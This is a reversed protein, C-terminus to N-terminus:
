IDQERGKQREKMRQGIEEEYPNDKGVGDSIWSIVDKATYLGTYRISNEKDNKRYLRIQPLHTYPIEEGANKWCDVEFIRVDEYRGLVHVAIKAVKLIRDCVTCNPVHFVVVADIEHNFVYKKFNKGVVRRVENSKHEVPKDSKYFQKVKGEKWEKFFIKLSHANIRDRMQYVKWQGDKLALIRVASSEPNSVGMLEMLHALNPKHLHIPLQISLIEWKFDMAAQWFPMQIGREENTDPYFIFVASKDHQFIREMAWDSPSRLINFYKLTFNQMVLDGHPGNRMDQAKETQEYWYIGNAHMLRDRDFCSIWLYYPYSAAIEKFFDYDSDMYGIYFFFREQTNEYKKLQSRTDIFVGPYAITKHLWESVLFPSRGATYNVRRKNIYLWYQPTYFVDQDRCMVRDVDCDVMGWTVNLEKQSLRQYAGYFGRMARLGEPDAGSNFLVFIRRHGTSAESFDKYRFNVMKSKIEEFTMNLHEPQEKPKKQEDRARKKSVSYVAHATILVAVLRAHVWRVEITSKLKGM